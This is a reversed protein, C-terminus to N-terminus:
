RFDPSKGGRTYIVQATQSRLPQPLEPAIPPALEELPNVAARNGGPELPAFQGVTPSLAVPSVKSPARGIGARSIQLKNKGVTAGRRRTWNAKGISRSIVFERCSGVPLSGPLVLEALSPPNRSPRTAWPEPHNTSTQYCSSLLIRGRVAELCMSRARWMPPSRHSSV